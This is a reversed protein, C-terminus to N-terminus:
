PSDPIGLQEDTGQPKQGTNSIKMKLNKKCQIAM